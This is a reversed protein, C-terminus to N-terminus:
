LHFKISFLKVDKGWKRNFIVKIIYINYYLNKFFDFFIRSSTVAGLELNLVELLRSEALTIELMKRNTSLRPIKGGM